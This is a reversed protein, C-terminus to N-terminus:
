SLTSKFPAAAIRYKRLCSLATDFLEDGTFRRPTKRAISDLYFRHPEDIFGNYYTIAFTIRLRSELGGLYRQSYLHLANSLELRNVQPQIVLTRQLIKANIERRAGSNFQTLHYAKCDNRFRLFHRACLNVRHAYVAERDFLKCLTM